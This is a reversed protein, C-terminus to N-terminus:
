TDLRAVPCYSGTGYIPACIFSDNQRFTINQTVNLVNFLTWGPKVRGYTPNSLFEWAQEAIELDMPTEETPKSLNYGMPVPTRKAFDLVVGLAQGLETAELASSNRDTRGM